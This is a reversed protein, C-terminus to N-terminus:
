KNWIFPLTPGSGNSRTEPGLEDPFRGSGLHFNYDTNNLMLGKFKCPKTVDMAGFGICKYPNTADMAGFGRFKYPKTAYPPNSTVIGEAGHDQSGARGPKGSASLQLM